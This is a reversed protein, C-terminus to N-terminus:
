FFSRSCVDFPHCAHHGNLANVVKGLIVLGALYLQVDTEELLDTLSTVLHPLGLQLRVAEEAQRFCFTAAPHLCFFFRRLFPRPCPVLIRLGFWWLCRMERPIAICKRPTPYRLRQGLVRSHQSSSHVPPCVGEGEQYLIWHYSVRHYERRPYTSLDFILM